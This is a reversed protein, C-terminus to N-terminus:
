PCRFLSSPALILRAQLDSAKNTGGASSGIIMDVEKGPSITFTTPRQALLTKNTTLDPASSYLTSYNARINVTLAAGTGAASKRVALDVPLLFLTDKTNLYYMGKSGTDASCTGPVTIYRTYSDIKQNISIMIKDGSALDSSGVWNCTVTGSSNTAASCYGVRLVAGSSSIVRVLSWKCMRAIADTGGTFTFTSASAYAIATPTHWISDITHGGGGTGVSDAWARWQGSIWRLSQGNTGTISSVWASGTSVPIGAGPYAMSVKGNFTAFDGHDLYGDVSATAKALSIAPTTGGSSTVPSTGTVSIVQATNAVNGLGVQTKTLGTLGSGSGTPTLYDTGATMVPQYVGTHNHAAAAAGVQTYTIGTLSAGSGTPTLYDTGAVLATPFNAKKVMGGSLTLVSTPSADSKVTDLKAQGKIEIGYDVKLPAPLGTASDYSSIQDVHVARTAGGGGVPVNGGDAYIVNSSPDFLLFAPKIPKLGDTMQRCGPYSWKDNYQAPILVVQNIVTNLKRRWSSSYWVGNIGLSDPGAQYKNLTGGLVFSVTNFLHDQAAMTLPALLLLFLMIKKM